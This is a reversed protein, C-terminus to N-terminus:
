NCWVGICGSNMGDLNSGGQKKMQEKLIAIENAFERMKLQIAKITSEL